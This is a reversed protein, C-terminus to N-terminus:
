RSLGNEARSAIEGRPMANSTKLSRRKMTIPPPASKTQIDTRRKIPFMLLGASATMDPAEQSSRAGCTRKAYGIM